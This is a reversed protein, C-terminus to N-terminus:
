EIEVDGFKATKIDPNDWSEHNESCRPIYGYRQMKISFLMGIMLYLRNDIIFSSSLFLKGLFAFLLFIILDKNECMKICSVIKKVFYVILVFGIIGGYSYLIECIINHVYRGDLVLRDGCLGHPVFPNDWVKALVTTMYSIRGDSSATSGVMINHLMQNHIGNSELIDYIFILTKDYWDSQIYSFVLGAVFITTCQSRLNRRQRSIYVYCVFVLTLLLPGRTSLMFLLSLGMISAILYVVKKQCILAHFVVLVYPLVTYSFSMDKDVGKLFMSNVFTICVGVLSIVYLDDIREVRTSKGAFYFLVAFYSASLSSLLISSNEPFIFMTLLISTAYFFVFSLESKFFKLSQQKRRIIDLVLIGYLLVTVISSISGLSIMELIQAVFGVVAPLLWIFATISDCKIYNDEQHKELM